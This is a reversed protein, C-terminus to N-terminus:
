RSLAGCSARVILETPLTDRLPEAGDQQLEGLVWLLAREGLQGIPVRVTTLPPTTFCALRVDDFGTLAIQQPVRVGRQQLGALAGIAM